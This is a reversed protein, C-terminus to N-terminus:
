DEAGPLIIGRYGPVWPSANAVLTRYITKAMSETQDLIPVDIQRLFSIAM